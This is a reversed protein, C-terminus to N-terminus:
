EGAGGAASASTVEAVGVIDADVVDTGVVDTGVVDAVSGIDAIESVDTFVGGAPSVGTGAAATFGPM